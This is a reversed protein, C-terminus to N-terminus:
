KNALTWCKWFSGWRSFSNAESNKSDFTIEQKWRREFTYEFNRMLSSLNAHVSDCFLYCWTSRRILFIVNLLKKLERIISVFHQLFPQISFQTIRIRSFGYFYISWFCYTLSIKILFCEWLTQIKMCYRSM